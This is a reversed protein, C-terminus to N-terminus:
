AGPSVPQPVGALGLRELLRGMTLGQVVVSFIVVIYTIAILRNHATTAPLSLALAVALGGRLGGWTLVSMAGRAPKHFARVVGLSAAVSLWRAGLVVPIALLGAWIYTPSWPMALMELGLLLFLIVNMIADVLEWFDDVSERTEQSMALTRARGGVVLGAAVAELPASLGLVDALAYGGMALALTLLVETRYSDVSRLLRYVLYGAALGLAIGGGAKVLLLVTFGLLSPRTGQAFTSLVTVFLVAGVGDNFLSEGALQAELSAPAGVRRLMELVAIPDTPSILAGFLLCHVFTTHFGTLSLIVQLLAAVVATSLFTGLISLSGVAAKHKALDRINLKLAGAFLLFALMGHLVVDSFNIHSMVSAVRAHLGPVARGAVAVVMSSALSLLMVGVPTPLPLFRRSLLSFAAALCVLASLLAFVPM